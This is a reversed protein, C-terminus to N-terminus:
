IKTKKFRFDTSLRNTDSRWIHSKPIFVLGGMNKVKLAIIATIVGNSTHWDQYPNDQHYTTPGM